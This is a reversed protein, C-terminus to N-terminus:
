KQEAVKKEYEERRTCFRCDNNAAGFCGICPDALVKAKEEAIGPQKLLPFITNKCDAKTPTEEYGMGYTNCQEIWNKTETMIFTLFEDEKPHKNKFERVLKDSLQEAGALFGEVYEPTKEHLEGYHM